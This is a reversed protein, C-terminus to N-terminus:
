AIDKLNIIKGEGILQKRKELNNLVLEKLKETAKASYGFMSPEKPIQALNLESLKIKIDSDTIKRKRGDYNVDKLLIFKLEYGELVEFKDAWSYGKHLNLDYNYNEQLDPALFMKDIHVADTDKNIELQVYVNEIAM